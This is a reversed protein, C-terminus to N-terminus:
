RRGNRTNEIKKHQQNDIMIKNFLLVQTYKKQNKSVTAM